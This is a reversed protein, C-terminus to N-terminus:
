LKKSAAIITSLVEEMEMNRFSFKSLLGRQRWDILHTWIHSIPVRRKELTLRVMSSSYVVVRELGGYGVAQAVLHLLANIDQAPGSSSSSSDGGSGGSGGSGRANRGNGNHTGTGAGSEYTGYTGVASKGPASASASASDLTCASPQSASFSGPIPIPAISIDLQYFRYALDHFADIPGDLHVRGEALLLVRGCVALSEDIRHSALLVGQHPQLLKLYRVIREAAIPDVGTTCEDLLLLAPAGTNAVRVSLKKRTGGSLAGVPYTYYKQPIIDGEACQTCSSPPASLSASASASASGGGGGSGGGGSGGASDSDGHSVGRIREFLKITQDVTLVDLLGGEQPVYGQVGAPGLMWRSRVVDLGCVRVAGAVPVAGEGGGCGLALTRFLTSKGGGNMGMLAVREARQVRFSLDCLALRQQGPYRLMVGEAEVLVGVGEGSGAGSGAEVGAGGDTGDTGGGLGEEMLESGQGQGQGQGQQKLMAARYEGVDVTPFFGVGGLGLGLGGQELLRAM